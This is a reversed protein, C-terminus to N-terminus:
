GKRNKLALQVPLEDGSRYKPGRTLMARSPAQRHYFFSSQSVPDPWAPVPGLKDLSEPLEGTIAAHMRIAEITCLFSHKSHLRARAKNVAGVAPLLESLISLVVDDEEDDLNLVHEILDAHSAAASRPLLSWKFWKDRTQDFRLLTARLVAEPASLEDDRNSWEATEALRNRSDQEMSTVYVGALLKAKILNDPDGEPQKVAAVEHFLRLLRRRASEAGIVTNPLPELGHCLRTTVISEFELSERVEFLDDVPISALAWYLNPCGPRGIAENVVGYMSEAIAYGVLRNVLFDGSHGTIESLRMGIRLDRQFDEWRQEAVALRARIVLLRALIRTEQVEPLWTGIMETASLEDFRLDYQVGMLNEVRSLENLPKPGYRDLFDRVRELPLEDLPLDYWQMMEENFELSADHDYNFQAAFLIARSFFPMPNTERRDEPAPWFRYALAPVPEAAAHLNLVQSKPKSETEVSKAELAPSILTQANSEAIGLMSAALLLLIVQFNTKRTHIKM